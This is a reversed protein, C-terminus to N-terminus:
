SALFGDVHSSTETETEREGVSFSIFFTSSPNSYIALLFMPVLIESKKLRTDIEIKDAHPSNHFNVM